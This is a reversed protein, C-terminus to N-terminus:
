LVADDADVDVDAAAAAGAAASSSVHKKVNSGSGGSSASSGVYFVAETKELPQVVAAAMAPLQSVVRRTLAADGFDAYANAQLRQKDAKAAGQFRVADADAAGKFKISEAEAHSLFAVAQANAVQEALNAEAQGRSEISMINAQARAVTTNIQSEVLGRETELKTIEQRVTERAIERAQEAQVRARSLEERLASIKLDLTQDSEAVARRQENIVLKAEQFFKGVQADAQSQTATVNSRMRSENKAVGQEAESKALAIERQGLSDMYGQDDYIRRITWSLLEVGLRALDDEVEDRVAQMFMARDRYLQEVTLKSVITRQHAELTLALANRMQDVADDGGFNQAALKLATEDLVPAAAMAVADATPAGGGSEHKPRTVWAKFTAQAVSEVHVPVGQSTEARGKVEITVLGLPLRQVTELWWFAWTARGVALRTGSLGSVLVAENPGALIVNGM